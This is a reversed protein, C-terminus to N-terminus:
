AALLSAASLEYPFSLLASGPTVPAPRLASHYRGGGGGPGGGPGGPGGPASAGGAPAGPVAASDGASGSGSGQTGTEAQTGRQAPPAGVHSPAGTPGGPTHSVIEIGHGYADHPMRLIWGPRILSAITLRTGDPQLRGENMAFIERYRLGNGLHKEAIEW